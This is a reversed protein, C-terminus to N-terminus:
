ENRKFHTSDKEVRRRKRRQDNTPIDWFNLFLEKSEEKLNYEKGGDGLGYDNDDWIAEIPFNFDLKQGSIPVIGALHYGGRVYKRNKM